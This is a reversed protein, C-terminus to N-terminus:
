GQHAKKAPIEAVAHRPPPAPCIRNRGACKAQYLAQDASEILAKDTAWAGDAEVCSVGISLTVRDAVQSKEHPIALSLVQERIRHAVALAGERDTEPLVVAFEEGGYRAALDTPRTATEAIVKGVAVLCEDGQQHGYHDNYPKFHDIDIMILSLPSKNRSARHLELKLYADLRRRNAIGTLPDQESLAQLQANAKALEATREAVRLELEDRAHVLARQKEELALINQGIQAAM